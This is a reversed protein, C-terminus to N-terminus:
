CIPCWKKLTPYAMYEKMCSSHAIHTYCMGDVIAMEDDQIPQSCILCDYKNDFFLRSCDISQKKYFADRKAQAEKSDNRVVKTEVMSNFDDLEFEWTILVLFKFLKGYTKKFPINGLCGQIPLIINACVVWCTFCGGYCGMPIFFCWCLGANFYSANTIFPEEVSKWYNL